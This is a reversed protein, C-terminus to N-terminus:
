IFLSLLKQEHGGSHDDGSFRSGSTTTESEDSPTAQRRKKLAVHDDGATLCLDLDIAQYKVVGGDFGEKGVFYEKKTLFCQGGGVTESVDEFGPGSVGGIVEPLPQWTGGRLVEQVASQCLNWNGTWMLGLAGSVPNVARGVAEFLLSQFLAPRQPHPVSSLFSMLGARGFFKAVFVTAHAQAQPNEICQLSQRLMCNESCGKRLVRCGNCSM